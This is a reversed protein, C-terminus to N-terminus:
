PVRETKARFLFSAVRQRLCRLWWNLQLALCGCRSRGFLRELWIAFNVLCCWSVIVNWILFLHSLGWPFGRHTHLYWLQDPWQVVIRFSDELFTSVILFRALSPIYPKLPQSVTDIIDEVKASIDKVQEMVQSIKTDNPNLIRASRPEWNLASELSNNKRNDVLRECAFVNINIAKGVFDRSL